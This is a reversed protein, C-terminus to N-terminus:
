QIKLLFINAALWSYKLVDIQISDMKIQIITGPLGPRDEGAGVGAFIFVNFTLWEALIILQIIRKFNM